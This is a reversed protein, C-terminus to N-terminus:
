SARYTVTQKRPSETYIVKDSDDMQSNQRERTTMGPVKRYSIVKQPVSYVTPARYYEDYDDFEEVIMQGSRIKRPELTPPSPSSALELRVPRRPTTNKSRSRSEPTHFLETEYRNPSVPPLPIPSVKKPSPPKTVEIIPPVLQITPAMSYQPTPPNVFVNVPYLLPQIVPAIVPKEQAISNRKITVRINSSSSINDSTPQLNRPLRQLAPDNSGPIHRRITLPPRGIPDHPYENVNVDPNLGAVYDATREM